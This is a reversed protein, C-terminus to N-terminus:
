IPSVSIEHDVSGGDQVIAQGVNGNLFGGKWKSDHRQRRSHKKRRSCAKLREKTSAKAIRTLYPHEFYETLQVLSSVSSYQVM